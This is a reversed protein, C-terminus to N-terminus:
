KPAVVLGGVTKGGAAALAKLYNAPTKVPPDIETPDDFVDNNTDTSGSDGTFTKLACFTFEGFPYRGNL